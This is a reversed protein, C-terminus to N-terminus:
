LYKIEGTTSYKISNDFSRKRSKALDEDNAFYEEDSLMKERESKNNKTM